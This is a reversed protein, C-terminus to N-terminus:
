VWRIPSNPTRRDGGSSGLQERMRLLVTEAYALAAIMADYWADQDLLIQDDVGYGFHPCADVFRRDAIGRRHAFVNRVQQMEYLNQSLVPDTRGSLSVWALLTEFRDVGKKAGRQQDLEHVLADVREDESLDEFMSYPVKIDSVKDSRSEPRHTLWAAVVGIAMTELAGWIAVLSHGHLLPHDDSAEEEARAVLEVGSVARTLTAAAEQISRSTPRQRRLMEIGVRSLEVLDREEEIYDTLRRIPNPGMWWSRAAPGVALGTPPTPMKSRLSHRLARLAMDLQDADRNAYVESTTGGRGVGLTARVAKFNGSGSYLARGVSHRAKMIPYGSTTGRPVLQANELCGYWWDHLAHDNRPADPTIKVQRWTGDRKKFVYRRGGDLIEESAIAALENKRPAYRRTEIQPVVFEEAAAARLTRLRQLDDWLIDDEITLTQRQRGRVFSLQRTGADFDRFRLTQMTGKTLGWDLFLRLPVSDWPEPSSALIANREEQTIVKRSKREVPRRQLAEAPDGRLNGQSTHWRFLERVVSVSKNYTRPSRHGWREELWSLLVTTGEPPEFRALRADPFAGVLEDLIARYGRSSGSALKAAGLYDAVAEDVRVDGAGTVEQDYFQTRSGVQARLAVM